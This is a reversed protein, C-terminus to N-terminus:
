PGWTAAFLGGEGRGLDGQDKVQGGHPLRRLRPVEAVARAVTDESLGARAVM